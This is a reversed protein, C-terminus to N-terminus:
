CTTDGTPLGIGAGVSCGPSRLDIPQFTNSLM